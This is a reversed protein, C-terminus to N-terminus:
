HKWSSARSPAISSSMEASKVPFRFMLRAQSHVSESHHQGWFRQWCSELSFYQLSIFMHLFFSLSLSRWYCSHYVVMWLPLGLMKLHTTWSLFDFNNLESSSVLTLLLLYISALADEFAYSFSASQFHPQYTSWVAYVLLFSSFFTSHTPTM